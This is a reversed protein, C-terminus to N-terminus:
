LRGGLATRLELDGTSAAALAEPTGLFLLRGRNLVGVRAPIDGLADPTNDTAILAM